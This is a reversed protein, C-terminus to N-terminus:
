RRVPTPCAYRYMPPFRPRDGNKARGASRMRPQSRAGPTGPANRKKGGKESRASAGAYALESPARPTAMAGESRVHPPAALATPPPV